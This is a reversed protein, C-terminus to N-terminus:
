RRQENSKMVKMILISFAYTYIFNWIYLDYNLEFDFSKRIFLDFINKILNIAFFSYAIIGFNKAKTYFWKRVYATLLYTVQSLGIIGTDFIEVMCSIFLVHLKIRNKSYVSSILTASVFSHLILYKKFLIPAFLFCSLIILVSLLKYNNKEVKKYNYEINM